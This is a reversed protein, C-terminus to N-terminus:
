FRRRKPKLQYLLFLSGIIATIILQIQTMSGVFHLIINLIILNVIVKKFIPLGAKGLIIMIIALALSLHFITNSIQSILENM